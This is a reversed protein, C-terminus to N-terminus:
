MDAAFKSTKRRKLGRIDGNGTASMQKNESSSSSFCQADLVNAPTCSGMEVVSECDDMAAVVAQQMRNYCNFLDDYECSSISNRFSPLRLPFLEYAACLIASASIVSPRFELLKIDNQAMFIIHTAREKLEQASKTDQFDSISFEIKRMKLALSVCSVAVLNLIWPKGDLPISYHSTSLFRDMYNIALYPSFPDFNLSHYQILSVIRRRRRCRCRRTTSLTQLYTSSPMHATETHFLLLPFSADDDDNSNSFPNELNFDDDFEM